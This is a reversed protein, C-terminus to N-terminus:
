PRRPELPSPLGCARRALAEGARRAALVRADAEGRAEGWAEGSPAIVVEGVAEGLSRAEGGGPGVWEARAIALVRVGRATPEGAPGQAAGVPESRLRELRVHLTAGGDCRARVGSRLLAARAGAAVAVTAAADAVEHRGTVVCVSGLSPLAEHASRYGCSCLGGTVVALGVLRPWHPEAFARTV